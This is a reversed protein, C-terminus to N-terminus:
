PSGVGARSPIARDDNGVVIEVRRNLQRSGADTNGAVPFEEGYGLARVRQADIGRQIIATAVADARRQSLQLNYEDSGQSDTFGEVQVRREPHQQLFQGIQDLSRQAGPKLEARGTDFLVDDLTLVIGRPTQAAKLEELQSALRQSEAQAQAMQAQANQAENRAAEAQTQAARAQAMAQTAESERASLLIQQRESEGAKIRAVAVQEQARQEAVRAMQTALYAYHSASADNAGREGAAGEANTLLSRARNLETPAYKSVNPDSQAGQVAARAAELTSNTKPATQCGVIGFLAVAVAATILNRQM